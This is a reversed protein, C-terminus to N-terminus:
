PLAHTASLNSLVVYITSDTLLDPDHIDFTANRQFFAGYAAERRTTRDNLVARGFTALTIPSNPMTRLSIAGVDGSATGARVLGNYLVPNLNDNYPVPNPHNYSSMNLAIDKIFLDPPIM